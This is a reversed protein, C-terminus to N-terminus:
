VLLASGCEKGDQETHPILQEAAATMKVNGNKRTQQLNESTLTMSIKIKEVVKVVKQERARLLLFCCIRTIHHVGEHKFADCMRIISYKEKNPFM